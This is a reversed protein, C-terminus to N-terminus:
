TSKHHITHELWSDVIRKFDVKGDGLLWSLRQWKSEEQSKCGRWKCYHSKSQGRPGGHIASGHYLQPSVLDLFTLPQQPHKADKGWEHKGRNSAKESSKVLQGTETAWHPGLLERLRHNHNAHINFSAHNGKQTLIMDQTNRKITLSFVDSLKGCAHLTEM